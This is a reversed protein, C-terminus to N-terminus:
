QKFITLFLISILYSGSKIALTIWFLLGESMKIGVLSNIYTALFSNNLNAAPDTKKRLKEEWVTLPCSGLILNIILTGSLITLHWPIYWRHNAGIIFVTGGILLAIWVFHVAMIVNALFKYRM